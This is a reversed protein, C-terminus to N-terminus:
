SATSYKKYLIDNRVSNIRERNIKYSTLIDLENKNCIPITPPPCHYLNAYFTKNWLRNLLQM